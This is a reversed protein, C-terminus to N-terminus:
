KIKPLTKIIYRGLRTSINTIKNSIKKPIKNETFPIIPDLTNYKSQMLFGIMIGRHIPNKFDLKEDLLSTFMIDSTKPGEGFGLNYLLIKLKDYEIENLQFKKKNSLKKILYDENIKIKNKLKSM